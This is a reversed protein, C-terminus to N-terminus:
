AEGHLTKLLRAHLTANAAVMTTSNENLVEGHIDTAKGGAETILLQGFAIDLPSLGVAVFGDARGSAVNMLDAVPNQTMRCSVGTKIFDTMSSIIYNADKNPKGELRSPVHFHFVGQVLSTRGTVRYRMESDLAGDGKAVLLQTDAVFDYVLAEKPTNNELVVYTSFAPEVAHMFNAYSAIPAALITINDTGEQQLSEKIDIKSEPYTESLVNFQFGSVKNIATELSQELGSTKVQQRAMDGFFRNLDKASKHCMRLLNNLRPNDLKAM